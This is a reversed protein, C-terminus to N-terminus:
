PPRNIGHGPGPFALVPTALAKRLGARGWREGKARCPCSKQASAWIRETGPLGWGKQGGLWEETLWPEPLPPIPHSGGLSLVTTLRKSEWGFEGVGVTGLVPKMGTGQNQPFNFGIM